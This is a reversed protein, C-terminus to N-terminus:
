KDQEFPRFGGVQRIDFHANTAAGYQITTTANFILNPNDEVRGEPTYIGYQMVVTLTRTTTDYSYTIPRNAVQCIATPIADSSYRAYLEEGSASLAGQHFNQLVDLSERESHGKLMLTEQLKEFFLGEDEAAIFADGDILFINNRAGDKEIQEKLESPSLKSAHGYNYRTAIIPTKSMEKCRANYEDYTRAISPFTAFPSPPVFIRHTESIADRGKIEKELLARAKELDAKLPASRPTELFSEITAKLHRLVFPTTTKSELLDTIQRTASKKQLKAILRELNVLLEAHSPGALASKTLKEHIALFKDVVLPIDLDFDSQDVEEEVIRVTELDIVDILTEVRTRLPSGEATKPVMHVLTDRASELGPTQSPKDEFSLIHRVIQSTEVTKLQVEIEEIKNEINKLVVFHTRLIDPDEQASDKVVEKLAEQLATLESLKTEFIKYAADDEITPYELATNIERLRSLADHIIADSSITTM